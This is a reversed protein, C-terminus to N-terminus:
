EMGWRRARVSRQETCKSELISAYKKKPVFIASYIDTGLREFHLIAPREVSFIPNLRVQHTHNTNHIVRTKVEEDKFQFTVTRTEGKGLGFYAALTASPLQVASGPKGKQGGTERKFIQLYLHRPPETLADMTELLRVKKAKQALPLNLIKEFLPKPASKAKVRAAPKAAKAGGAEDRKELGAGASTALRRIEDATVIKAQAQAKSWFGDLEKALASNSNYALEVALEANRALGGGTLNASGILVVSKDKYLFQYFKPHYIANSYKDEVFAAFTRKPFRAALVLGYYLADATTVGNGAGYISSFRGGAKLFAELRDAILGIGDWRAYAVSFRVEKLGDVELLENLRNCFDEDGGATQHIIRLQM